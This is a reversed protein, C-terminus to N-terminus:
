SGIVAHGLVANSVQISNGGYGFVTKAIPKGGQAGLFHLLDFCSNVESQTYISRGLPSSQFVYLGVNSGLKIARQKIITDQMLEEFRMGEVFGEISEMAAIIDKIFLRYDRKM